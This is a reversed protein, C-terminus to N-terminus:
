EDEPEYIMEKISLELAKVAEDVMPVRLARGVKREALWHAYAGSVEPFATQRGVSNLMYWLPRDIPKLWLFEATALVGDTRAIELLTAMVTLVYAHRKEALKAYKSNKQKKVLEKVGNFDLKPSSASKSIQILLNDAEKRNQNARCLFIAYLAQIHLPLSEIDRWFQGVQLAFVRFAAGDNLTVTVAAGSEKHEILLNHKKAFLMPTLSSSWPGEDLDKDVLNVKMVPTVQPWTHYESKRLTDMNYIHKFKEAVNAFYTILALGLIILSFPITFYGGVDNSLQVLSNLSMNTPKSNIIALDASLSSMQPLPLHFFSAVYSYAKLVYEIAYIEYFRVNLVGAVIYTRGFYWSLAFAAVILVIMWFFDLSNDQGGQQQQPAAAM